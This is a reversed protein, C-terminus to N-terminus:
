IMYKLQQSNREINIAVATPYPNSNAYDNILIRKSHNIEMILDYNYFGLDNLMHVTLEKYKYPRATCFVVKCGEDLKDKLVKVNEQLIEYNHYSGFQTKVITGDIDCFYTPKNNFDEWDRLTGVDIFNEVEKNLFIEDNALMNAIVDSVFIEGTQTAKLTEFSHIYQAITDFQYGGVCFDDSVIKKEIISTIINQVNCIVFSKGAINRLGNHKSLKSTFVVNGSVSNDDYFSDCDKILLTAQPDFNHQKIAQYITDAPGMTAKDLIIVNINNFVNRLLTSVDFQIEHQKLIVININHKGIYNKIAKEIMMEGDYATLLYKPRMNPFRTSLGACPIIVEM